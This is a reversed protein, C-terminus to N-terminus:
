ILQEVRQWSKFMLPYEQNRGFIDPGNQAHFSDSKINETAAPIRTMLPSRLTILDIIIFNEQM